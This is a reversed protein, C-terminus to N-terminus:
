ATENDIADTICGVDSDDGWPPNAPPQRSVRPKRDIRQPRSPREVADLGM